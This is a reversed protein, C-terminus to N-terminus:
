LVGIWTIGALFHFGRMLFLFGEMTVLEMVFRGRQTTREGDRVLVEGARAPGPAYEVAVVKGNDIAIRPDSVSPTPDGCSLRSSM